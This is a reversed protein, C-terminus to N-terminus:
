CVAIICTALENMQLSIVNLSVNAKHSVDTYCLFEKLMLAYVHMLSFGSAAPKLKNFNLAVVNKVELDLQFLHPDLSM